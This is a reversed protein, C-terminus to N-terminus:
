PRPPHRLGVAGPLPRVRWVTRPSLFAFLVKSGDLPPLPFLNFIFLSINIVLFWTIVLGVFDLAPSPAPNVAISSGSSAAALVAMVLNSVPGAVAVLAEGRHGWRLM